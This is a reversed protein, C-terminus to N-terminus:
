SQWERDYIPTSMGYVGCFVARNCGDPRYKCSDAIEACADFIAASDYGSPPM